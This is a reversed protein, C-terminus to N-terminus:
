SVLHVCLLVQQMTYPQPYEPKTDTYCKYWYLIINLARM